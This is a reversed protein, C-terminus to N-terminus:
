RGVGKVFPVVLDTPTNRSLALRSGLDLVKHFDGSSLSEHIYKVTQYLQVMPQEGGGWVDIIQKGIDFMHSEIRYNPFSTMVKSLKSDMLIIWHLYRKHGKGVVEKYLGGMLREPNVGPRGFWRVVEKRYNAMVVDSFSKGKVEIYKDPIEIYGEIAIFSKHMERFDMLYKVIQQLDTSIYSSYVHGPVWGDLDFFIDLNGRQYLPLDIQYRHFAKAKEVGKQPLHSGSAIKFYGSSKPLRIKTDAKCLYSAAFIISGIQFRRRHERVAQDACMSPNWTRAFNVLGKEQVLGINKGNPIDYQWDLSNIHEPNTRCYGFLASAWAAMIMRGLGKKRLDTLDGLNMFRHGNFMLVAHIHVGRQKDQSDDDQNNGGKKKYKKGDGFEFARYHRVFLDRDKSKGGSREGSKLQNEIVSMQENLSKIFRSYYDVALRKETSWEAPFYLDVRCTFIKSNALYSTVVTQILRILAEKLLPGSDAQVAYGNFFNSYSLQWGKFVQHTKRGERYAKLHKGKPISSYRRKNSLFRNYKADKDGTKKTQKKTQNSSNVYSM